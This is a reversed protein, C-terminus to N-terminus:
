AHDRCCAGGNEPIPPHVPLAVPEAAGSSERVTRGALVTLKGTSRGRLPFDTEPFAPFLSEILVFAKSFPPISEANAPKPLSFRLRWFPGGEGIGGQRKLLFPGKEPEALKRFWLPNHHRIHELPVYGTFMSRLAPAEGPAFAAMYIHVPLFVAMLGACCFHALLCIQLLGETGPRGSAFVLILGTLALGLSCLVAIIAVLKQGANYFGQPPLEPDLGLRRMLREGLVLWLGKRLCWVLDSGIHLDTIEKLFPLAEARARVLLYAAYLVIWAMGVVVHLRLLGLAGFAGTWLSSWWDGVPQMLPNALLAFGTFLLLLWCAANYWHMFIATASHRRIM